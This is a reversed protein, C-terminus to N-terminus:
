KEGTIANLANKDNDMTNDVCDTKLSSEMSELEGLLSSFSVRSANNMSENAVDSAAAQVTAVVVAEQETPDNVVAQLKQLESHNPLEDLDSSCM